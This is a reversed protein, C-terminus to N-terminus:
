ENRGQAPAVSQALLDLLGGPSTEAESEIFRKTIKAIAPYFGFNASGAIVADCFRPVWSRLHENLFETQVGLVRTAEDLNGEDLLKAAKRCLYELFELEIAIHDEPENFWAMRQLGERRYIDLVKRRPEQSVLADAGLYVSEYPHAPQDGIGLFLSAFDAALEEVLHQSIEVGDFFDRLDAYGQGDLEQGLDNSNVTDKIRELLAKDVEKRYIFSLFGYVSARLLLSSVTHLLGAAHM